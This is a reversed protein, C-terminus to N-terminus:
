RSKKPPRSCRTSGPTDKSAIMRAPKSTPMNGSAPQVERRPVCSQLLTPMDIGAAALLVQKAVLPQDDAVPWQSAATHDRDVGVDGLVLAAFALQRRRGVAKRKGAVLRRTGAALEGLCDLRNGFAEGQEVAGVPQDQVVAAIALEIRRDRMEDAAAGAEPQHQGLRHPEAHDLGAVALRLFPDFPAHRDMVVLRLRQLQLKGISAPQRDALTRRVFAADDADVGVDGGQLLALGLQRPQDVAQGDRAVLRLLGVLGLAAEEGGHAVLQARREIGDQADAVHHAFFGLVCALRVQEIREAADVAGPPM